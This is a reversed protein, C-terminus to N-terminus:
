INVVWRIRFQTILTNFNLSPEIQQAGLSLILHAYNVISCTFCFLNLWFEHQREFIMVHFLHSFLLIILMLRFFESQAPTYWAFDKYLKGKSLSARMKM